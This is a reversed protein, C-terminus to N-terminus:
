PSQKAREDINGYSDVIYVKNCFNHTASIYGGNLSFNSINIICGNSKNYGYTALIDANHIAEQPHQSLYVRAATHANKLDQNAANCAGKNRYATFQPIAIAALIGIIAVMVLVGAGSSSSFAFLPALPYAFINRSVVPISGANKYNILAAVRKPLFPHSANLEYVSTWFGGTDNVQNVFASIDLQQGYKGGAALITLGKVSPNLEGVVAYGCLDCSYERARSYAPWLWPILHAPLLLWINKLHKLALHGIEHVIIMDMEKGNEDCAELLDTYVVVFNRSFFKTAFANMMEGAQMVYAEPVTKLGLKQADDVVKQYIAPLQHESLKVANGKIYAIVLAHAAFIFFGIFLAYLAGVITVVVVLWIIFSVILCVIYLNRESRTRLEKANM